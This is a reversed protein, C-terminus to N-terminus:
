KLGWYESPKGTWKTLDAGPALEKVAKAYSVAGAKKTLTLKRGGFVASKEGSMAVMEGLLEKRREGARELAETLQDYEAVMKAAEPTDITIRLPALHEDLNNELEWLYEAHFQKLAPINTALWDDDRHILKNCTGHPTWQYFWLSQWDACFMEVQCQAMYHPLEQPMKFIPNPDNRIYFPCKVELGKGDSVSGDPSAGLWDEYPIFPMSSVRESTEMEFEQIAGAENYTGWETAVNGTFESPAGMSARVMSRLVDARTMYPSLGLIAGVVSGTVRGKRQEFWEPTRQEIM